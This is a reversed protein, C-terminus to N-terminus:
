SISLSRSYSLSKSFSCSALERKFPMDVYSGKLEALEIEPAEDVEEEDRGRRGIGSSKALEAVGTDFPVALVATPEDPRTFPTDPERLLWLPIHIDSPSPLDDWEGEGGDENKRDCPSM